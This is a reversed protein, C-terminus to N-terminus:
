DYKKSPDSFHMSPTLTTATVKKAKRFTKGEQYNIQRYKKTEKQTPLSGDLLWLLNNIEKGTPKHKRFVLKLIQTVGDKTETLHLLGRAELIDNLDKRFKNAARVLPLPHIIVESYRTLLEQEKGIENQRNEFFRISDAQSSTGAIQIFRKICDSGVKLKANTNHNQILWNEKYNRHNCLECNEVFIDSDSPIHTILEWELRAEKYTEGFSNEILVKKVLPGPITTLEQHAEKDKTSNHFQRM